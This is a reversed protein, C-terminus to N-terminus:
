GGVCAITFILLTDAEKKLSLDTEEKLYLTREIVAETGEKM